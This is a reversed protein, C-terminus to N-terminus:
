APTLSIVMVGHIKPKPDQHLRLLRRSCGVEVAAEGVGISSLQPSRTLLTLIEFYISHNDCVVTCHVVLVREKRAGVGFGLVDLLVAASASPPILAGQQYLAAFEDRVSGPPGCRVAAQMDTDLPGPPVSSLLRLAHVRSLGPTCLHM